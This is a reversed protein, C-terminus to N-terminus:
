TRIVTADCDLCRGIGPIKPDPRTRPHRCLNATLTRGTPTTRTTPPATGRTAATNLLRRVWEDLPLGDREALLGLAHHVSPTVTTTIRRHQAM